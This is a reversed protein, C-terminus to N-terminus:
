LPDIGAAEAERLWASVTPRDRIGDIGARLAEVERGRWLPSALWQRFYARLAGLQDRSLEAETLLYAEVAPRLVGTTENPWYGPAGAAPAPPIRLKKM